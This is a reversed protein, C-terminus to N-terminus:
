VMTRKNCLVMKYCQLNYKCIINLISLKIQFFIYWDNFIYVNKDDNMKTKLFLYIPSLQKM